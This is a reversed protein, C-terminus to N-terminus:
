VRAPISCNRWPWFKPTRPQDGATMGVPCHYGSSRSSTESKEIVVPPFQGATANVVPLRQFLGSDTLDSLLGDDFEVPKPRPDPDTLRPEAIAVTIMVADVVHEEHSPRFDRGSNGGLGGLVIIDPKNAASPEGNGFRTGTRVPQERRGQGRQEARDDGAVDGGFRQEEAISLCGRGVLVPGPCERHDTM